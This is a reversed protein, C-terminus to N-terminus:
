GGLRKCRLKWSAAVMATEPGM